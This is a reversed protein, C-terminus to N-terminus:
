LGKLISAIVGIALIIFAIIAWTLNAGTAEGIAPLIVVISIIIIFLAIIGGVIEEFDVM